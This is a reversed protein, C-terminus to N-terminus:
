RSPHVKFSSFQNGTFAGHKDSQIDRSKPKGSKEVNVEKYTIFSKKFNEEKYHEEGPWPYTDDIDPERWSILGDMTRQWESEYWVADTAAYEETSRYTFKINTIQEDTYINSVFLDDTFLLEFNPKITPIDDVNDVQGSGGGFAISERVFLSGDTFIGNTCLIQGGSFVVYESDLQYSVTNRVRHIQNDCDTVLQPVKSNAGKIEIRRESVLSVCDSTITVGPESKLVIGRLGQLEGKEVDEINANTYPASLLMGGAETHILVDKQGKIRVQGETTTIDLYRRAKIIQDDGALSIVSGGAATTINKSATVICHGAILQISDGWANRLLISGDPLIGMFAEGVRFNKVGLEADDTIGSQAAMIDQEEPFERFFEGLGPVSPAPGPAPCTAEDPTEWDKKLADRNSPLQKNFLHALYDRHQAASGAPHETDLQFDSKIVDPIVKDGDPDDYERKKKPVAIQFSKHIGGGVISREIHQGSITLSEQYLGLDPKSAKNLSGIGSAPRCLFSQSFDGLWGTWRKWRPKLVQREEKEELAIEDAKTRINADPNDEFAGSPSDTGLSEKQRLASQEEESIRGHDNFTRKEGQSTFINLNHGVINLRDNMAFAEIKALDSGRLMAIARLLGVFCGLDNIIGADGSLADVPSGGGAQPLDSGGCWDDQNFSENESYATVGGETVLQGAPSSGPSSDTPPMLMLIYGVKKNPSVYVLVDTGIPPLSISRAGFLGGMVSSPLYCPIDTLYGYLSVKCCGSAPFTNDIKGLFISTGELNNSAILNGMGHDPGTGKIEFSNVASNLNM